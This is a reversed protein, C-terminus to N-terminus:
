KCGLYSLNWNLFLFHSVLESTPHLSLKASFNPWAVVLSGGSWFGSLTSVFHSGFLYCYGLPFWPESLNIVAWFNYPPCRSTWSQERRWTKMVGNQQNEHLTLNRNNHSGQHDRTTGRPWSDAQLAPAANSTPELGPGPLDGPPPCPWGSWYERQLIRHVSFGPLNRDMHDCTHSPVHTSAAWCALSLARVAEAWTWDRTLSSFDWLDQLAAFFLLLLFSIRIIMLSLNLSFFFISHHIIKPRINFLNDLHGWKQIRHRSPLVEM